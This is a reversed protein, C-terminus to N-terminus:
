SLLWKIQKPLCVRRLDYNSIVFDRAAEGLTDRLNSDNLLELVSDALMSPSFFDFLKGTKNNAIAEHLPQTDSAVIACGVAMAELLSWSLVFPYTLYVHVRSVHLLTILRAYEITGVFHVRELQQTSLHAKLEGGFRTKWSIGDPPPAGYSIGENGVIVIIASPRAALIKPLSRMFIHFGRYPELARSVFTIVEDGSTLTENNDLVYRASPDPRLAQTDIGDHIVTIHKKIHQPFTSAQWHTPSLGADASQFQLLMNANKLAVRASDGPELSSFEPDFGVDAGRTHYFFECYLKLKAEPWVQKLFLSEGWGPHAVIVEPRYGEARLAQAALLCAEGRIVKSEFDVAWPHVDKGNERQLAYPVVKVGNWYTIQGKTLVLATVKFGTKALEPALYKFQGPFNQHVFLINM